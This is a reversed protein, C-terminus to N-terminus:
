FCVVASLQIDPFHLQSVQVPVSSSSTHLTSVSDEAGDSYNTDSSEYVDDTKEPLIRLLGIRKTGPSWKYDIELHDNFVRIIDIFSRSILTLPSPYESKFLELLELRLGDLDWKELPAPPIIALRAHNIEKDTTAIEANLKKIRDSIDSMAVVGSEIADLLNKKKKEAGQKSLELKALNEGADSLKLEAKEISMQVLGRLSTGNMFHRQFDALVLQELQKQPIMRLNCVSSGSDRSKNCRYYRWGGKRGSTTGSVPSGCLGCTLHGALSYENTKPIKISKAKKEFMNNIINVEEQTIIPEWANKVIIWESEPKFKQGVTKHDWKNFVLKGLYPDTNRLLHCITSGTWSGGRATPIGRENLNYAIHRYGYGLLRMKVIDKVALSTVPDPELTFKKGGKDNAIGVKRYGYPPTGGNLYGQRANMMQGRLTEVSLNKLYFEDLVETISELLRGGLSDDFNQKVFAIDVGRKRLIAKYVICDEQSRAFRSSDYCIITKFPPPNKKADSVMRQFEPRRDNKASVGEETYTYDGLLILNHNKAYRKIELLQSPLSSGTEVQM